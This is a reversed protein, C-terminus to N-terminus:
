LRRLPVCHYSPLCHSCTAPHSIGFLFFGMLIGYQHMTEMGPCACFQSPMSRFLKILKSRNQAPCLVSQVRSIGGLRLCSEPIRVTNKLNLRFIEIQEYVSQWLSIFMELWPCDKNYLGKVVTKLHAGSYDPFSQKKHLIFLM